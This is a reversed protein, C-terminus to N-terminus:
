DEEDEDGRLARKSQLKIAFSANQRTDAAKLFALLGWASMMSSGGHSVFPMTVGTLPLLDVAGFVNLVTQFVLLSMAACAAITYFSSRGVRISRVAFVALTVIAVVALLAIVLGWEECLMGFVLDTDAAAVTHLWGRGAGVGILGGSAAASMTRTQQYGAGSANEWVHGWVAFRSAIYPKFRVVMMGAFAVGGCILSLTAFDGSRLYAIVLFAVFFIAATGFDRMAALCLLCFGSFLIFGYLNRRTLLRDLTAAGAYVFAVKILESPQLSFGGVSIWNRAGHNVGAIILNVLFLLIAAIAMPHRLLVARRLDRLYWGLLLFIVVGLAIAFFQKLVTTPASSSTVALSLTCLFFAVLEMEFGVRRAARLFLVYSWMLVCLGFFSLPIQLELEPGRVVAFQVVTFLQFLTLIVLSAWPSVPRSMARRAAIERKKQAAPVPLFALEVGGLTLLDGPVLPAKEEVPEGNIETGVKSGLDTVEWNGDDDRILTAHSRSISPYDLVIDSSSARGLTNEWHTVPIEDGEPLRIIAWTEAPQKVRLLSHLVDILLGLALLPMVWRIVGTYWAGAQPYEALFNFLPTFIVKLLEMENEQSLTFGGAQPRDGCAHRPRDAGHM